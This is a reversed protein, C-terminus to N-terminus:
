RGIKKSNSSDPIYNFARDFHGWTYRAMSQTLKCTEERIIPVSENTSSRLLRYYDPVGVGKPIDIETSKLSPGLIEFLAEGIPKAADRAKEIIESLDQSVNFGSAEVCDRFLMLDYKQLYILAFGEYAFHYNGISQTTRDIFGNFLSGLPLFRFNPVQTVHFPQHLDQLYHLAWMLTRVGWFPQRELMFKDSLALWKQFRVKAQGISRFPIQLTLLPQKYDFGAFYMHRFGQSTVGATGGMWKRESRADFSEPLDQDMGQDPEDIMTGKFLEHVEIKRLNPNLESFVPVKAANLEMGASLEAIMKREEAPTPIQVSQFLYKRGLNPTTRALADMFAQHQDWALAEIGTTFVLLAIWGLRM